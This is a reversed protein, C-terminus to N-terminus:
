EYEKEDTVELLSSIGQFSRAAPNELIKQAATFPDKEILGNMELIAEIRGFWNRDSYDDNSNQVQHIADILVPFVISAHLIGEALKQGRVNLYDKWDAKSLIVTIKDTEYDIEMPGEHSLGEMISMFSSVPPRLPDFSKEAIFSCYGGVALVDGKEIDFGVGKYDPHCEEPRYNNIDEDACIYFGVTVRERVAKSPMSFREVPQRTSFSRRFFTSRCEVEATFSAKEKKLLDEITKNKLIFAPNLIIENKGLEYHFEARFSGGLDNENGLVPYPYSKLNVKM